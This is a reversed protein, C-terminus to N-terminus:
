RGPDSGQGLDPFRGTALFGAVLAAARADLLLGTHSAEVTVHDALGPLRPAGLAVTGDHPGQFGAFLRGMGVPKIGAIMGVERGAPLSELGAKLLTRSRGLWGDLRWRALGRAAGSGALPSGLCAIRGPPLGAWHSAAELAVLGGLSHGVLHVPGPAMALLRQALRDAAAAPGRWLSAYDFLEPAYGFRRLRRALPWLTPGRMWVGHLLLVPTPPPSAPAAQPDGMAM